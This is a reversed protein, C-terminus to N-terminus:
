IGLEPYYAGVPASQGPMVFVPKGPAFTLAFADPIDTSESMSLLGQMRMKDKPMIEIKGTPGERYRIKLMQLWEVSPQLAGGQRIWNKARWFMYARLNSFEVPDKKEEITKKEPPKEGSKIGNVKLNLQILRSVVGAGVGIADLFVNHSQVNEQRIIEVIHDATKMLDSELTKGQVKAYNDQRVVFANYNVGEAIDGGLRRVGIAEVIRKQAEDLDAEAILPMWGQEDVMEAPPYICDYLIAFMIPDLIGRMEDAYKTEMRNERIGQHYDIKIVKYGADSTYLGPRVKKEKDYEFIASSKYAHNRGFTNTIKLLFNSKHGGLMRMAKGHINDPILAADDEILNQGGHGILIDGADEGTRRADASLIIVEGVAGTEDVRFTLHDKSRDHKLRELSENGELKLKGLCYDNEFVHKILKGMIIGAKDKTGGLIIWKEGFTTARLAVAMSVVDSKGYQTYCEFQTREAQKEYIARFLAIQGETMQFPEGYDNKFLKRVIDFARQDEPTM